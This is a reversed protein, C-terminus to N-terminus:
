ARTAGRTRRPSRATEYVPAAHRSEALRGRELAELLGARWWAGREGSAAPALAERDIVRAVAERLEDDTVGELIM